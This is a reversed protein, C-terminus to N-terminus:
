IVCYFYIASCSNLCSPIIAIYIERRLCKFYDRGSLLLAINCYLGLCFHTFSFFFILIVWKAHHNDCYAPAQYRRIRFLLSFYACYAINYAQHTTVNKVSVVHPMKTCRVYVYILHMRTSRRTICLLSQPSWWHLACYMM